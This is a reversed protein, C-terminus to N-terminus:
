APGDGGIPEGAVALLKVRVGLHQHGDAGGFRDGAGQEAEDFGTGLDDQDLGVVVGVGGHYRHRSRDAHGHGEYRVPRAECQIGVRQRRGDRGPRRRQHDVRRMVRRALHEGIGLQRPYGLERHFM